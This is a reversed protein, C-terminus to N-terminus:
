KTYWLLIVNDTIIQGKAFANELEEIRSDQDPYYKRALKCFQQIM